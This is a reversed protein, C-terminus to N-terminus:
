ECELVGRERINRGSAGAREAHWMNRIIYIHTHIYIRIYIYITKSMTYTHTYIYITNSNVREKPTGCM